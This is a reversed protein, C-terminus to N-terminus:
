MIESVFELTLGAQPDVYFRRAEPQFQYLVTLLCRSRTDCM